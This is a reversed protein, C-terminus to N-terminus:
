FGGRIGGNTALWAVIQYNRGIKTPTGALCDANNVVGATYTCQRTIVNTAGLDNTHVLFMTSADPNGSIANGYVLITVKIPGVSGDGVHLVSWEGVLRSCQTVSSQCAFTTVGDQITVTQLNPASSLKTAQVNHRGVSQNTSYTDDGVNYGGDFNGGGTTIPTSATFNNVDGRSHHGKDNNSFGNASETFTATFSSGSSPVQFAVTFVIDVGVNQAGFDCSLTPAVVCRADSVYSAAKDAKFSLTSINGPGANELTVRYAADKGPGVNEMISVANSGKWGPTAASASGVGLLLLAM